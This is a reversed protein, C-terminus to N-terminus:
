CPCVKVLLSGPEFLKVVRLLGVMCLVGCLILAAIFLLSGFLNPHIEVEENARVSSVGGCSEVQHLIGSYVVLLLVDVCKPTLEVDLGGFVVVECDIGVVEM